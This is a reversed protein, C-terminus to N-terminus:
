PSESGLAAAAPTLVNRPAFGGWLLMADGTWVAAHDWRPSPAGDTTLPRWRDAVPDYRGGDARGGVGDFGGWVLMESGTWVATAGTRPGPAGNHTITHWLDRAPDYAAGDALAAGGDWGGWVIMERGTWVTTHAVRATPAGDTSLRRWRGTRPDFGAGDSLVFTSSVGGWVLMETGTWVASHMERGTPAGEMPLPSWADVDPRYRGGLSGALFEGTVIMESGTWVARHYARPGPRGESSLPRWRDTRPDWAAGDSQHGRGAGGWVIMEAGTWVASHGSRPSLTGDLSLTRWTGSTPDYRAGANRQVDDTGGWVIMEAGTWVATATATAAMPPALPRWTTLARPSADPLANQPADTAAGADRDATPLPPHCRSNPDHCCALRASRANADARPDLDALTLTTAVVACRGRDGTVEARLVIEHHLLDCFSEDPIVLPQPPVRFWGPADDAVRLATRLRLTAVIADDAPRRATLLVSVGSPDLGRSRLAVWVHQGGQAGPTLFVADGDHLPRFAYVEQGTSGLVAEADCVLPPAADPREPPALPAVCGTLALALLRHSGLRTRATTGVRRTGSGYRVARTRTCM